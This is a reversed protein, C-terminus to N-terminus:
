SAASTTTSRARSLRASASRRRPSTRASCACSSARGSSRRRPRSRGPPTWTTSPIQIWRPAARLDGQWRLERGGVASDSFARALSARMEPRLLEGFPDPERQLEPAAMGFLRSAGESVYDFRLEGRLTDQVIRFVVGPVNEAISRLRAESERLAAEAQRREHKAASSRLSRELAPVLRALRSKQIYDDAGALMAEVALDEGIEGSVILFPVDLAASKFVELAETASFGPLKHDSIVVDWAARRLALRMAHADVVREAAVDFGAQRLLRLLLNFDLESDEIFLVHLPRGAAASVAASPASM